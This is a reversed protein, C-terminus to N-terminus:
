RQGPKFISGGAGTYSSVPGSGIVGDLAKRLNRAIAFRYPSQVNYFAKTNSDLEDLFIADEMYDASADELHNIM